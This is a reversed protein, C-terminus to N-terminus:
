SEESPSPAALVRLADAPLHLQVPTGQEYPVGKGTNQVLAQLAQGTAARVIVQVASGVYVLREVMAPLRNPGSPAGHPELEVREPRIVIKAPGSVDGGGARAELEFRDLVVRCGGDRAGHAIADMLNSVGLFDAVFLTEPDEYVDRPAGVQEVRGANMVALRDSMTLAEEQDHTVYLFTIGVEQQLAKLEIQLTKRLKADLAGLPEDLLLVAPNLVLARALAVRQQQGGSLQSSRRREYGGLQVLELAQRVRQGVESKPRRARRLGFAINDFVDLHPFLAYNQFVTNVNRKHPPTRAVDNGDLLIQGSTPQEFGAILRLTTTKGCGSPGLLSFFEGGRVHVEIGDVATVDDFRKTLGILQIDGRAV